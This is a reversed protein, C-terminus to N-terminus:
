DIQAPSGSAALRRPSSTHSLKAGALAAELRHQLGLLQADKGVQLKQSAELAAALRQKLAAKDRAARNQAFDLEYELQRVEKLQDFARCAAVSCQVGLM